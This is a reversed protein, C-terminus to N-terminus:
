EVNWVVATFVVISFIVRWMFISRANLPNDYYGMIKDKSIMVIM